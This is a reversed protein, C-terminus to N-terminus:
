QSSLQGALIGFERLVQLLEQVQPRSAAQLSFFLLLLAAPRMHKM